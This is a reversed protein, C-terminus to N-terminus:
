TFSVICEPLAEALRYALERAGPSETAAHGADLLLFGHAEAAVFEHHRVDSTVLADAEARIADPMLSAGAGGCVAVRYVERDSGGGVRVADYALANRVRLLFDSASLPQALEGVRGLGFEVVTNKLPYVDFAIEEYPHAKRLASVIAQWSHEPAIMELRNEAVEEVTGVTGIFPNAGPLARFTGTGGTWFSCRDYGGIAGAGVEAMAEFVSERYETPVFVVVKVLPERYTIQLPRTNQL